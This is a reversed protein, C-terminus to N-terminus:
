DRNLTVKGLYEKHEFADFFPKLEDYVDLLYSNSLESKNWHLLNFTGRFGLEYRADNRSPVKRERKLYGILEDMNDVENVQYNGRHYDFNESPVSLEQNLRISLDFYIQVLREDMTANDITYNPLEHLKAINGLVQFRELSDEYQPKQKMKFLRM